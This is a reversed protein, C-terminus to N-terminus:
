DDDDEQHEHEDHERDEEHEDHGDEAEEYEDEAKEHEHEDGLTVTPASTAVADVVLVEPVSTTTGPAVVPNGHQDVFETVVIPEMGTAEPTRTAGLTLFLASVAGTATLAVAGAVAAATSTKM